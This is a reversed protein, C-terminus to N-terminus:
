RHGNPSDAQEADSVQRRPPLQAVVLVSALGLAAAWSQTGVAVGALVIMGGGALRAGGAGVYWQGTISVLGIVSVLGGIVRLAFGFALDLPLVNMDRGGGLAVMFAVFGALLIGILLATPPRTM